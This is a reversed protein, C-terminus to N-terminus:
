LGTVAIRDADQTIRVVIFEAPTSAALGIDAVLRGTDRGDPPNNEADCKVFFASAPDTGALAGSRLLELCRVTLRRQVRQWLEPTHAEFVVDDMHSKLWRALGIFLRAVPVHRWQSHGSLTRAGWVRIGRGPLSRICNVGLDNLRGHQEDGIVADLAIADALVENAPARHAGSRADIRAYLGAVHGCPPVLGHATALGHPAADVQLWPFYLAGFRSKAWRSQAAADAVPDSGQQRPMSDLIAFRDGMAECHQLVARQIDRLAAASGRAANVADPVCLVDIDAINDLVGGVAFPRMMAAVGPEEDLPLVACQQGGNAFFGEV